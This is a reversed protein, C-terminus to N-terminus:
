FIFFCSFKGWHCPQCVPRGGALEKAFKTNRLGRPGTRALVKNGQLGNSPLPFHFPQVKLSANYVQQQQSIKMRMEACLPLLHLRSNSHALYILFFWRWGLRHQRIIYNLTMCSASKLHRRRRRIHTRVAKILAHLDSQVAGLSDTLMKEVNDIQRWSSTKLRLHVCMCFLLVRPPESKCLINGCRSNLRKFHSKWRLYLACWTYVYLALTTTALNPGIILSASQICLLRHFTAADIIWRKASVTTSSSSIACELYKWLWAAALSCRPTHQTNPYPWRATKILSLCPTMITAKINHVLVRSASVCECAAAADGGKHYFIYGTKDAPKLCSSSSSRIVHGSSSSIRGSKNEHYHRPQSLRRSQEVRSM